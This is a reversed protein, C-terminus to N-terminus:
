WCFSSRCFCCFNFSSNSFSFAVCGAVVGMAVGGTVVGMAVGGTVLGMAVGGTVVGMVVCGVLADVVDKSRTHASVGVSACWGTTDILLPQIM